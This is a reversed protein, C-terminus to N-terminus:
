LIVIVTTLQNFAACFNHLRINNQNLFKEKRLNKGGDKESYEAGVEWGKMELRQELEEVKFVNLMQQEHNTM